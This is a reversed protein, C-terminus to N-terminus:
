SSLGSSPTGVAAALPSSLEEQRSLSETQAAKAPGSSDVEARSM